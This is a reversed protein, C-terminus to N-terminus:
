AVGATPCVPRPASRATVAACPVAAARSWWSAHDTGRGITGSFDAPPPPLEKVRITLQNSFATRSVAQVNGGFFDNNFFDDFFPDRSRRKVQRLEAYEFPVSPVTVTGGSLPILGWRLTFSRFMEGNVRETSQTVQNGFLRSLSFGKGISKELAQVAANFGRDIQTPSNGRQLVKLTLIAQEGKYIQQKGLSLSVRVDPVRGPSSEPAAANFSVPETLYPKNDILAQLAPFTFAGAKKPTIVYTFQYHIEKTNSVKGNIIQISTSSSQSQETSVVAFADSQPVPPPTLGKVEKDVVLEVIIAVQEGPSVETHDTTANFRRVEGFGALVGLMVAATFVAAKM